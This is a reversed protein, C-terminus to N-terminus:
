PMEILARMTMSRQVGVSARAYAAIMADPYTKGKEEDKVLTRTNPVSVDERVCYPESLNPHSVSGHWRRRLVYRAKWSVVPKEVSPVRRPVAGICESREARQARLTDRPM